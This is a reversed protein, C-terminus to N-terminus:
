CAIKESKDEMAGQPSAQRDTSATDGSVPHVEYRRSMKTEAPSLKHKVQGIQRAVAEASRGGRMSLGTAVLFLASFGFGIASVIKQESAAKSALKKLSGDAYANCISKAENDALGFTEKITSLDSTCKDLKYSKWSYVHRIMEGDTAFWARSTNGQFLAPSAFFLVMVAAFFLSSFYGTGNWFYFHHPPLKVIEPKSVDIWRKAKQLLSIDLRHRRVLGILKHLDGLNTVKLGYVLRFKELDRMEQMFARLRPEQVEAGGAILRWVREWPAHLSYARRWFTVVLLIVALATLCPVLLPGVLPSSFANSLTDMTITRSEFFDLIALQIATKKGVSLPYARYPPIAHWYVSLAAM